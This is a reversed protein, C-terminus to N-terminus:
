KAIDSGLLVLVQAGNLTPVPLPSPMPQVRAPPLKLAAAVQNGAAEYGPLVYVISITIKASATVPDVTTFGASKLATTTRGAAGQVGSANAVVVKFSGAPPVTTAAPVTTAGGPVTTAGGKVTTTTATTPKSSSGSGSNVNALVVVGVVVAILVLIAGKVVNDNSPRRQGGGENNQRRVNM